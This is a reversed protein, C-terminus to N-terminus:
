PFLDDTTGGELCALDEVTPAYVPVHRSVWDSGRTQLVASAM